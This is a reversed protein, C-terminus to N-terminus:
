PIIGTDGFLSQVSTDTFMQFKTFKFNNKLCTVSELIITSKFM